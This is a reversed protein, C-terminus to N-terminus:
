HSRFRCFYSIPRSPIARDIPGDGRRRDAISTAKQPLLKTIGSFLVEARSRRVFRNDVKRIADLLAGGDPSCAFSRLGARDRNKSCARTVLKSVDMLGFRRVAYRAM